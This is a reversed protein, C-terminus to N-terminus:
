NKSLAQKLDNILDDIGEIGVSLRIYNPNIGQKLQEEKSLKAHTTSSPHTAISKIDGLNATLSFCNLSNLVKTADSLDGHITFGILGGGMKMQKKALDYQKSDPDFPYFIDKVRPHKKLFYFIKETNYCHEKIRLELTDISHSLIWANFPSICVGTRRQYDFCLQIWKKEGLIAGGLVRGQGDLYKTGSHLVIDAGLKIPNQLIPTAFTNDVVLLIERPKSLQSLQELDALSLTPNSPTEVFFLKTNPQIAKEWQSYQDIDVWTCHIGFKSLIHELVYKNNGFVAKSAVIHDGQELLAFVITQLAAMGSPTALGTEAEELICLKDIWETMNPNSFRSYIYADKEGGFVQASEEASNFTFSSNLFLPSRHEQYSTQKFVGRILQTKKQM